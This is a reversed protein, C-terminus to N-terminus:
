KPDGIASKWEEGITPIGGDLPRNTRIPLSFTSKERRPANPPHELAHVATERKVRKSRRAVKKVRKLDYTGAFKDLSYATIRCATDSKIRHYSTM